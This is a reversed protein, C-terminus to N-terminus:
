WTPAVPTKGVRSNVVEFRSLTRVPFAMAQGDAVVGLVLEDEALKADKAAVIPPDVPVPHVRMDVEKMPSGPRPQVTAHVTRPKSPTEQGALPATSLLSLAALVALPQRPFLLRNKM